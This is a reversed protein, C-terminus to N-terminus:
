WTVAADEARSSSPVSGAVGDAGGSGIIMAHRGKPHHIFLLTQPKPYYYYYYFCYVVIIIIISIIILINIAIIIIVIIIIVISIIIIIIKAFFVCYPMLSYPGNKVEGESGESHQTKQAERFLPVGM